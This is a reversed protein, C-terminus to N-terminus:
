DRGGPQRRLSARHAAVATERAEDGTEGARRTGLEALRERQGYVVLVDDPRVVTDGQPAGVYPGDARQIGLVLCGEEPLDLESLSRDALWDGDRVAIETVRYDEALHLLSLYDRAELSSWRELAWGIVRQLQHEVWRSSAAVWLVALGAALMLLRLLGDQGQELNTFSLILSSTATVLGASQLLMLLSVIRRRVPHRVIMEAEATTFGTGTIASRAQFRAAEMSMGTYVLAVTAIRVILLSILLIILFSTAAAM